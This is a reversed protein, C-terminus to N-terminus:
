DPPTGALFRTCLGYSNVSGRCSSVVGVTEGAVYQHVPCRTQTRTALKWRYLNVCVARGSRGGIPTIEACRWFAELMAVEYAAFPYSFGGTKEVQVIALANYNFDHM